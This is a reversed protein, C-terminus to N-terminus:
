LEEIPVGVIGAHEKIRFLVTKTDMKTPSYFIIKSPVEIQIARCMADIYQHQQATTTSENVIFLPHYPLSSNFPLDIETTGCLLVEEQNASYKTIIDQVMQKNIYHAAIFIM